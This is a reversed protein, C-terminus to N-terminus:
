YRASTHGILTGVLRTLPHYARDKTTPVTTIVPFTRVGAATAVCQEHHYLWRWLVAALGLLPQRAAEYRADKYVSLDRALQEDKVALAVFNVADALVPLTLRAERCAFCEAFGGLASTHCIVCVGPGAPLVPRLHNAYPDSFEQVTAM